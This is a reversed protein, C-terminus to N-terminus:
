LKRKKKTTTNTANNVEQKLKEIKMQIEDIEMEAAARKSTTKPKRKPKQAKSTSTTKPNSKTKAKAKPNPNSKLKSKLELEKATEPTVLPKPEEAAAASISFTLEDAAAATKEPTRQRRRQKKTTRRSIGFDKLHKSSVYQLGITMGPKQLQQSGGCVLDTFYQVAFELNVVKKDSTMTEPFSFVMGFFFCRKHPHQDQEQQETPTIIHPHVVVSSVYECRALRTLLQRLKSEVFGKWEDLDKANEAEVSVSLYHKYKQFFESEAILDNLGSAFDAAATTTTSTSSAAITSIIEHGRKWEARLVSLTSQSVNHTSNQYPYAPTIIPLLDRGNNQNWCPLGLKLPSESLECLLIPTPWTWISYLKFFKGLLQNPPLNPYLKCVYAVLIAWSVGGLYGLVNSYIGRRKAWLKIFRLVNRFNPINPVKSLITDTVRCGNLSLATKEDAFKLVQDNFLNLSDNVPTGTMVACVLDLDIGCYVCKIVPVYADPVATIASMEDQQKLIALFETFFLERSMTSPVVILTDIDAGSAHVGLRYSGFTYIKSRMSGIHEEGYKLTNRHYDITWKGVLDNLKGLVQERLVSEEPPEILKYRDLFKDLEMCMPIDSEKPGDTSIVHNTM